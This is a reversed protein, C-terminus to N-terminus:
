SLSLHVLLYLVVPVARSGSQELVGKFTNELIDKQIRIVDLEVLGLFTGLLLPCEFEIRRQMFPVQTSCSSILIVSLYLVLHGKIVQMEETMATRLNLDM